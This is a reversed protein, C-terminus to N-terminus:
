LSDNRTITSLCPFIGPRDDNIPNSLCSIFNLSIQRDLFESIQLVRKDHILDSHMKAHIATRIVLTSCVLTHAEFGESM